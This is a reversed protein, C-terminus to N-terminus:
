QGPRRRSRCPQVRAMREPEAWIRESGLLRDVGAAEMAETRAPLGKIAPKVSLVCTKTPVAVVSVLRFLRNHNQVKSSELWGGIAVADSRGFM